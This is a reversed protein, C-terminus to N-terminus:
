IGNIELLEFELPVFLKLTSGDREATIDPEAIIGSDILPKLSRKYIEVAKKVTEDSMKARKLTWGASGWSLTEKKDNITLPIADGWWGRNKTGEPLEDAEVRADTFMAILVQQIIPNQVTDIDLTQLDIIM